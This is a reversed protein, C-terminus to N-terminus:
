STTRGFHDLRRTMRRHPIGCDDYVPGEAVFGLREYFPIAHTQSELVARTFGRELAAALATEMLARGVGLGRASARVAVRGIKAVGDGRDVLRATGVPAGDHFAILHLADADYADFEEELPCRQEDVFVEVRLAYIANREAVSEIPRAVTM